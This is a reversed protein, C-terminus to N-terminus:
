PLHCYDAGEAGTTEGEPAVEKVVIDNANYAFTSLDANSSVMKIVYKISDVDEETLKVISLLMGPMGVTEGWDNYGQIVHNTFTWPKLDSAFTNAFSYIEKKTINTQVTDSVVQILTDVKTLIEPNAAKKVMANIVLQQNKARGLDGEKLTSRHRALALSKVGTLVQPGKKVYIINSKAWSRNAPRECFDMPVNVHIGGLADIVDIVSSFTIKAYYNVEIDLANEITRITCDIGGFGTHTLKDYGNNMCANPLYADRPISNILIHKTLPNVTVIMNVDSASRTTAKGLTDIGSVLVTFSNATVDIPKVIQVVPIEIEAAEIIATKEKFDPFSEEVLARYSESMVIASVEKDYLANVASTYDQFSSSKYKVGLNSLHKDALSMHSTDFSKQIAISKNNLEKVDIINSERLVLISIYENTSTPLKIVEEIAHDVTNVTYSAFAFVGIFLVVFVRRLWHTAMPQRIMSLILNVLLLIVGVLIGLAIWTTPLLQMPIIIVFLWLLAVLLLFTLVIDLGAIRLRRKRKKNMRSAGLTNASTSKKVHKM